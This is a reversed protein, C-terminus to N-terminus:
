REESRYGLTAKGILRDDKTSYKWITGFPRGHAITVYYFQRDPSMVIGHPGSIDAGPMVGTHLTHDLKAGDPGFSVVAIKDASECVVYVFYTKSPLAEQAWLGLGLFVVVYLLFCRRLITTMTM